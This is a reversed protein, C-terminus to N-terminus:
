FLHKMKDLDFVIGLCRLNLMVIFSNYLGKTVIFGWFCPRDDNGSHMAVLHLEEEFLLLVATHSAKNERICLSRLHFLQNQHQTKSEM